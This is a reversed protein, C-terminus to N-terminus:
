SHQLAMWINRHLFMLLAVSTLVTVMLVLSLLGKLAPSGIMRLAPNSFFFLDAPTFVSIKCDERERERGQNPTKAQLFMRLHGCSIFGYSYKQLCPKPESIGSRVFLIGNDPIFSASYRSLFLMERGTTAVPIRQCPDKHNIQGDPNQYFGIQSHRGTHIGATSRLLGSLCVCVCVSHIFPGALQLM